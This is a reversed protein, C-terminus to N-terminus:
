KQLGQLYALLELVEDQTYQDMLAKPMMSKSTKVIDEIDDQPIVTPEKAEPNEVISITDKDEDVVLGTLTRGDVTLIVHMAYQPDIRHSPDLIERLVAVSDGKWRRYVDTLEPGVAGGDGKVKHCNLCSAEAFIRQGIEPSRGRLGGPLQDKFDAVTWAQVFSRNSGIPDEPPLPDQLWADLDEVVVMVGYMRQWHQPFTCVYPYEGPETPAEFTLRYQEHAPVMDTAELVKESEPVYQKGQWGGAPGVALGMMAVEKLAGPVTLVLNHPMLDENDLVIQVPRGAEVAFYNTDYRMEEEITKIRIVRVTVARLRERYARSESASVAVLSQDALQMADIFADSTRDDAPTNEAYAVLRGLLTAATAADRQETPIQLMGAVAAERLRADEFLAALTAFTESQRHPIVALASIAARQVAVADAELQGAAFERMSPEIQRQPVLRLSRLLDVTAPADDAQTIAQQVSGATLLAAFATRRLISRDSETAAILQASHEKLQEQPQQLVMRALEGATRQTQRDTGDVEALAELLVEVPDSQKIKALAAVAEERYQPSMGARTLIATYVPVYKADSDAREVMLLRENDLRKLQYAVIRPSKDLFVKPPKVDRAPSSTGHGHGHQSHDQALLATQYLVGFALAVAM